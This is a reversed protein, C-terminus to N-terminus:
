RADAYGEHLRAVFAEPEDLLEGLDRGLAEAADLHAAVFAQAAMTTPSTM